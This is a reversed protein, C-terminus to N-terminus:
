HFVQSVLGQDKHIRVARGDSVAIGAAEQGRHQLAYLGFFAMRAADDGSTSIGVVGCEEKPADDGFVDRTRHEPQQPQGPEPIM